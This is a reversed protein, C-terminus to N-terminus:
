SPWHHSSGQAEEEEQPTGVKEQEVQQWWRSVDGTQVARRVKLRKHGARASMGLVM